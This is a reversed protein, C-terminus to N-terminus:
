YPVELARLGSFPKLREPDRGHRVIRAAAHRGLNITGSTSVSIIQQGDPSFSLRSSASGTSCPSSKGAPQPIGSSSLGTGGGSALRRGDPSYGRQHHHRYARPAPRGRPRKGGGPHPDGLRGLLRATGAPTSRWVRPNEFYGGLSPLQRGTAADSVKVEAPITSTSSRAALALRHGDPSFGLRLDTASGSHPCPAMTRDDRGLVTRDRRPQGLRTAATPATPWGGSSTPIGRSRSSCSARQRTGSRSRGRAAPGPSTGSAPTSPWM